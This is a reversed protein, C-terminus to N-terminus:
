PKKSRIRQVLGGALDVKNLPTVIYYGDCFSLTKSVIDMSFDLSIEKVEAPNKGALRKILEAPISIGSVENNLFLANKHSALPQIGALLRIGLEKKALFLNEIERDSFLPQSLFYQAGNELKRRARDLENKFNAAGTDIAAGIYYPSSAFLEENLRRIYAILTAANFSFVGKYEERDTQAIPDGTIILINRINEIQGAILAAKIGIHNRDRCSLHPLVEAGTERRIRAATMISDARTRALPSDAVTILDAGASKLARAADTIFDGNPLVPADLEVALIKRGSAFGEALPNQAPRPPKVTPLDCVVPAFASPHGQFKAVTQRIHEPTTGCCGGLINVGLSHIDAIKGSFYDANDMYVTRGNLTSPYGANPMAALPKGIACLDRLLDYMHSPGCLCNLGVVDVHPSAAATEMIKKYSHGRSTTGDQSVAFSVLIVSDPVKKRILALAPALPDFESMTEFIFHTAGCGIFTRAINKYEEAADLSSSHICGIDAFVATGTGQAAKYAIEYGRQIIFALKERDETLIPNAGFTNTKVANAGAAIYEKHIALVSDPDSLNATECFINKHFKSHYYTGFAGDFFFPTKGRTLDL